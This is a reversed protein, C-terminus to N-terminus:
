PCHDTGCNLRCYLLLKYSRRARLLFLSSTIFNALSPCTISFGCSAKFFGKTNSNKPISSFATYVSLSKSDATQFVSLLSKVRYLFFLYYQVVSMVVSHWYKHM